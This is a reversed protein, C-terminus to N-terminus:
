EQLKKIAQLCDRFDKLAQNIIELEEKEHKIHLEMLAILLDDYNKTKTKM